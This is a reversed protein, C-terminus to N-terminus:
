FVICHKLIGKGQLKERVVGNKGKTFEKGWPESLSMIRNKGNNYM